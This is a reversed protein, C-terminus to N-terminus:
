EMKLIMEDLSTINKELEIMLSESRKSALETNWSEKNWWIRVRSLEKQSNMLETKQKDLFSKLSILPTLIDSRLSNIYKASDFLNWKNAKKEINELKLVLSVIQSFTSSFKEFWSHLISFNMDKEFNEQIEKSQQEIQPTLSQIKEGLNGFAYLPHFHEVLQRLLYIIVPTWLFIFWWLPVLFYLIILWFDYDISFILIIPLIVFSTALLLFLYPLWIPFKIWFWIPDTIIELLNFKYSLININERNTEILWKLWQLYKIPQNFNFKKALIYIFDQTYFLKGIFIYSLVARLVYFLPILFLIFSLFITVTESLFFSLIIWCFLIPLITGYLVWLYLWYLRIFKPFNLIEKVLFGRNELVM